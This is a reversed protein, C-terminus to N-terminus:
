QVKNVISQVKNRFDPIYKVIQWVLVFNISGYKHAAINRIPKFLIWQVDTHKAKFETPLEKLKESINILSMMIAKQLQKNGTFDQADNCNGAKLFDLIDKTEELVGLLVVKNKTM